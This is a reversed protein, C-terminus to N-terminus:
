IVNNLLEKMPSVCMNEFSDEGQAAVHNTLVLNLGNINTLEDKLLESYVDLGVGRFKGLNIYKLLFEEDVVESRSTNIFFVKEKMLKFLDENIIEKTHINFPIHVTIVDSEKVVQKIDKMKVNLEELVKKDQEIVDFAIINVDFGSLKKAVLKGINGFGLIGITKNKLEFFPKIRDQRILSMLLYVTHEAVSNSNTGECSIIKINRKKLEDLDINDTGVSCNVIYKIDPLKNLQPRGMKTFTRIVAVGFGPFSNGNMFLQNTTTSVDTANSLLEKANEHIEGIILSKM